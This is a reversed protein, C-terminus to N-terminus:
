WELTAVEGVFASTILQNTSIYFRKNALIGLNTFLVLQNIPSGTGLFIGSLVPPSPNASKDRYMQGALTELEFILYGMSSNPDGVTIMGPSGDTDGEVMLSDVVEQPNQAIYTDLDNVDTFSQAVWFCTMEVPNLPDQMPTPMPMIEQPEVVVGRGCCSGVIYQLIRTIKDLGQEISGPALKQLNAFSISQTIENMGFARFVRFRTGSALKAVGEGTLMIMGTGENSDTLIVSYDTNIILEEQIVDDDDEVRAGVFGQGAVGLDPGLNSFAWTTQSTNSIVIPLPFVTNIM